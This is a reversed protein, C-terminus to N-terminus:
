SWTPGRVMETQAAVNPMMSSLSSYLSVPMIFLSLSLMLLSISLGFITRQTKGAIMPSSGTSPLAQNRFELNVIWLVSLVLM